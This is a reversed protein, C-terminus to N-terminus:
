QRGPWLRVMTLIADPKKHHRASRHSPERPELREFADHFKRLCVFVHVGSKKYISSFTFVDQTEARNPLGSHIM